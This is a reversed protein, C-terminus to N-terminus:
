RDSFLSDDDDLDDDTSEVSIVPKNIMSQVKAELAAQLQKKVSNKTTKAEEKKQKDSIRMIGGHAGRTVHWEPHRRIYYRIIPDAERVEKDGWGMKVAMLGFLAPFQLNGEGNWNNLVEDTANFIGVMNDLVTDIHDSM